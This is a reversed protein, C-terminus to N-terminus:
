LLSHSEGRVARLEATRRPELAEAPSVNGLSALREVGAVVLQRLLARITNGCFGRLCLGLEEETSVYQQVDMTEVGRLLQSALEYLAASSPKIM